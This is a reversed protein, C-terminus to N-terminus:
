LLKRLKALAKGRHSIKNKDEPSAIGFSKGLEESFFIPDYGFGGSGTREKLIRGHTKGEVTIIKGDPYVLAMSCLFYASRDEKGELEKLLKDMNANDDGHVGSYRASLVGPAGDLSPVILGSDDGLSPKGSFQCATKAKILANEAFTDGDEVIDEFFGIDSLSIINYDPLIEQIERLKNKNASAVVLDTM